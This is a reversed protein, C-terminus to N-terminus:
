LPLCDSASTEPGDPLRRADRELQDVRRHLEVVPDHEMAEALDAFWRRAARLRETLTM